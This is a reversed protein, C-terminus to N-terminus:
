VGNIPELRSWQLTIKGATEATTSSKNVVQLSKFYKDDAVSLNGQMKSPVPYVKDTEDLGDLRIEIDVADNNQCIFSNFGDKSKALKDASSQFFENGDAVVATNEGSDNVVSKYQISIAMKKVGM